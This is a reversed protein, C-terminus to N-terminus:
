IMEKGEDSRSEGGEGDKIRQRFSDIIWIQVAVPPSVVARM